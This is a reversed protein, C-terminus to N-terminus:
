NISVFKDIRGVNIMYAFLGALSLLIIGYPIGSSFGFTRFEPFVFPSITLFYFFLGIGGIASFIQNKTDTISNIQIWFSAGFSFAPIITSVLYLIPFLYVVMDVIHTISVGLTNLLPITIFSIPYYLLFTMPLLMLIWSKKDLTNRNRYNFIILAAWLLLFSVIWAVGLLSQVESCSPPMEFHLCNEPVPIRLFLFHGLNISISLYHLIANIVLSCYAFGYLLVINGERINHFRLIRYALLSLFFVAAGFSVTVVGSVVYSLYASSDHNTLVEFTLILMLVTIISQVALISISRGGLRSDSTQISLIHHLIFYQLVLAVIAV